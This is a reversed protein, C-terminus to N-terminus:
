ARSAEREIEAALTQRYVTEAQPMAGAAARRMYGSPPIFTGDPSIHGEEVLWDINSPRKEDAALKDADAGVIGGLNLGRGILKSTQARRLAGTDVPTQAKVAKLLVRTGARMAKRNARRAGTKSLGELKRALEGFGKTKISM